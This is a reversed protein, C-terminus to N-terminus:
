GIKVVELGPRFETNFSDITNTSIIVGDIFEQMMYTLDSQGFGQGDPWNRTWHSSVDTAIELLEWQRVGSISIFETFGPITRKCHFILDAPFILYNM